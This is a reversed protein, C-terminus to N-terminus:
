SLLAVCWHGLQRLEKATVIKQIWKDKLCRGSFALTIERQIKLVRGDVTQIGRAGEFLFYYLMVGTGRAWDYM